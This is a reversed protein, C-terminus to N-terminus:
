RGNPYSVANARAGVASDITLRDVNAMQTIQGRLLPPRTSIFEDIFRDLIAEFNARTSLERLLTRFAERAQARDFQQRAFGPPLAKRFAVDTLSFDAAAELLLDAWRCCLVGVTIHLSINEGSRADHTLGRPIYAIDGAAAFHSHGTIASRAKEDPRYRGAYRSVSPPM